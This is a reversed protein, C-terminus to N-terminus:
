VIDAVYKFGRFLICAAEALTTCLLEARYATCVAKDQILLQEFQKMFWRCQFLYYTLSIKTDIPHSIAVSFSGRNFMFAIPKCNNHVVKVCICDM